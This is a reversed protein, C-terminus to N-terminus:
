ASANRSDGTGRGGTSRGSGSSSLSASMAHSATAAVDQELNEILEVIASEPVLRRRGVTCSRLQGSAMLKFITSRGLSLRKMVAEVTHLRPTTEAIQESM